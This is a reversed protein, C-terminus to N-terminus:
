KLTHTKVRFDISSARSRIADEIILDREGQQLSLWSMENEVGLEKFSFVEEMNPNKVEYKVSVGTKM